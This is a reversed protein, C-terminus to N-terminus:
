RRLAPCDALLAAPLTSKSHAVALSVLERLVLAPAVGFPAIAHVADIRRVVPGGDDALRDLVDDMAGSFPVHGAYLAHIRRGAPTADHMGVDHVYTLLVALGVVFDRRDVPRRPCCSM